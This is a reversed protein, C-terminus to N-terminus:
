EECEVTGIRAVSDALVLGEKKTSLNKMKFLPTGGPGVLRTNEKIMKMKDNITISLAVEVKLQKSKVDATVGTRPDNEQICDKFVDPKPHFTDKAIHTNTNGM